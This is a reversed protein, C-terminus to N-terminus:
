LRPLIKAEGEIGCTRENRANCMRNRIEDDSLADLDPVVINTEKLTRAQMWKGGTSVGKGEVVQCCFSAWNAMFKRGGELGELLMAFCHPMAEFQEWVVEVGQTSARRAIAKGEDALMEEGYGMWLPCTGSWDKAALPSVLPHCLMSTDCYLDGRPPTTPWIECKPVHAIYDESPPPPLYDYLANTTISPMCRTLDLWASSVAVGAPILIPVDRGHFRIAPPYESPSSKHLQLILQLLSMALGGGASDGAFIIHKAPVESHYSGPPPSVLSLYAILADLLAAPFPNQPALRYRVSLCRGGTMKALRSCPVRHSSPDM